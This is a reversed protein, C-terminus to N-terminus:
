YVININLFEPPKPIELIEGNLYRDKNTNIFDRLMQRYDKVIQKEEATIPYDELLYRDTKNLLENRINRARKLFHENNPVYSSM